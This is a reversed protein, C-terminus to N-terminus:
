DTEAFVDVGGVRQTAGHEDDDGGYAFEFLAQDDFTHFTAHVRAFSSPLCIPRSAQM